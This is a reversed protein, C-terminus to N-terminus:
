DRARRPGPDGLAELKKRATKLRKLSVGLLGLFVLLTLAYAPWIFSAHGGMAFFDSLSSSM